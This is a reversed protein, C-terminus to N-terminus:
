KYLREDASEFEDDDPIDLTKKDNDETLSNLENSDDRLSFFEDEDLDDFPVAKIDNCLQFERKLPQEIPAIPPPPNTSIEILQTTSVFCDNSLITDFISMQSMKSTIIQDISEETTEVDQKMISQEENKVEEDSTAPTTPSTSNTFHKDFDAFNDPTTDFNAWNDNNSNIDNNFSIFSAPQYHDNNLITSNNTNNANNTTSSTSSNTYFSIINCNNNMLFDNQQLQLHQQHMQHQQQQQQQQLLLHSIFHHNHHHPNTTTFNSLPYSLHINNEYDNNGVSTNFGDNSEDSGHFVDDNENLGSIPGNQKHNLRVGNEDHDDDADEDFPSTDSKHNLNTNYHFPYDINTTSNDWINNDFDADM